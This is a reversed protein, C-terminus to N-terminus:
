APHPPAGPPNDIAKKIRDELGEISYPGELRLVEKGMHFLLSTPVATVNLHSTIDPNEDVDIELIPILEHMKRAYRLLEPRFHSCPISDHCLFAVLFFPARSDIRSQLDIDNTYQLVFKSM